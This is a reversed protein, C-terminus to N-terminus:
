IPFVTCESSPSAYASINVLNYPQASLLLSLTTTGGNETTVGSGSCCSVVLNAVDNDINFLSLSPATRFGNVDCLIDCM